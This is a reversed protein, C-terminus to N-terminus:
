KLIWVRAIMYIITWMVLAVPLMWVVLRRLKDGAYVPQNCSHLHPHSERLDDECKRCLMRSKHGWFLTECSQCM